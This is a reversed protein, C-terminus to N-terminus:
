PSKGKERKEGLKKLEMDLGDLLKQMVWRPEDIGSMLPSKRGLWSWPEDGTVADAKQAEEEAAGPRQEAARVDEARRHYKSDSEDEGLLKLMWTWESFSYQRPPSADLHEIVQKLQKLLLQPRFDEAEKAEHGTAGDGAQVNGGMGRVAASQQATQSDPDDGGRGDEMFGPPKAASFDGDKDVKKKKAEHQIGALFGKEPLNQALWLTVSNVGESIVGGISGILVTLTPLALLAWMVFAPKASNTNPYFDGYGITLYSVYTFYLAEFYSWDPEAQWFVVAGIFWLGLWM